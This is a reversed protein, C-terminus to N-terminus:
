SLYPPLDDITRRLEGLQTRLQRNEAALRDLETRLEDIVGRMTEMSISETEPGSKLWAGVAGAIGGVGLVAVLVSSLDM